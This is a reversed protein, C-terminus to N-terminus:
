GRGGLDCKVSDFGSDFKVTNLINELLYQPTIYKGKKNQTSLYLCATNNENCTISKVRDLEALYAGEAETMGYCEYCGSNYIETHYLNTTSTSILGGSFYNYQEYPTKFTGPFESCKLVKFNAIISDSVDFEQGLILANEVPGSLNIYENVGEKSLSRDEYFIEKDSPYRFEFKDNKYLIWNDTPNTEIVKEENSIIENNEIINDEKIDSNNQFYFFYGAILIIVFIINLLFSVVLITSLNKNEEKVIPTKEQGLDVATIQKNEINFEGDNNM